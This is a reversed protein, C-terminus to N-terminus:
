YRRSIDQQASRSRRGVAQRYIATLQAYNPEPSYTDLYARRAATGMSATLNAEAALAKVADALARPDGPTVLRGTQGDDVMDNMAGLGSAIVPLGAALAEIVALPMGEYWLSPFILARASRMEAQVEERSLPGIYTVGPLAAAAAQVEGALPGDGVIRLAVDAELLRWAALLTRVGKEEAMRGVFLFPGHGYRGRGASEDSARDGPDGPDGPDPAFNPKVLLREPPLGGAVFRDRGFTTLAIFADVDRHWTRRARHVALMATVAATQARSDRYCAHVIAPMAVRRGVCDECPAGDRFLTAAPCILRYNHLTQVIAAGTARAAGHVAPSLLPLFNHVHVVDAGVARARDAVAEAAAGAWVTRVALRVRYSPSPRDPIEDNDVVLREVRHGHRALLESEADFVADEGGSQRYRNHVVLVSEISDLGGPAAAGPTTATDPLV